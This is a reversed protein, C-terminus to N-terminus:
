QADSEPDVPEPKEVEVAFADLVTASFRGYAVVSTIELIEEDSFGHTRLSALHDDTVGGPNTAIKEVYEFLAITKEDLPASHYDTEVSDILEEAVGVQQLFARHWFRNYYCGNLRATLLAAFQKVAKPIAGEAVMITQYMDNHVRFLDPRSSFVKTINPILGFNERLRQYEAEVVGEAQQEDVTQIRM